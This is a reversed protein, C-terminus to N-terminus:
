SEEPVTERPPDCPYPGFPTQPVFPGNYDPYPSYPKSCCPKPRPKHYGSPHAKSCGGFLTCKSLGAPDSFGVPNDDVYAYFNTAGAFGIPDEGVFGGANPDYYRARYYYLGTETDFDRGTYRFPNQVSGASNTLNGFSDFTYTTALVSSSNTLSTVSGLGETEYSTTGSRLEAM